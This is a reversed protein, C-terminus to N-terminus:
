GARAPRSRRPVPSVAWLHRVAHARHPRWAGAAEPPAGLRELGRRVGLDTPLWADPDGLARMAVYDATWPGIGPLARLAERAAAVDAGPELALGDALAGALAALTRQRARPMPM